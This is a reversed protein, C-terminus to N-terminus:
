RGTPLGPGGDSGDSGATNGGSGGSGIVIAYDGSLAGAALVKRAYGGGGGGGACSAENTGTDDGGGGGGGGGVVEVVIHSFADDTPKSWTDDSTYVHVVPPTPTDGSLLIRKRPVSTDIGLWLAQVVGAGDVECVLLRADPNSAILEAAPLYLSGGLLDVKDSLGDNGPVLTGDPEVRWAESMDAAGDNVSLVLATPMDGAGPSGDVEAHIAAGDVQTAGDRGTFLVRGLTDGDQVAADAARLRSLTEQPFGADARVM